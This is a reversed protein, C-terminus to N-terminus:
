SSKFAKVYVWPKEDARTVSIIHEREHKRGKCNKVYGHAFPTCRPVYSDSSWALSWRAFIRAEELCGGEQKLFLFFSKPIWLLTAVSRDMGKYLGPLLVTM